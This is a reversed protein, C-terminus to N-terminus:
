QKLNKTSKLIRHLDKLNWEIFDRLAYNALMGRGQLYTENQCQKKIRELENIKDELLQKTTM